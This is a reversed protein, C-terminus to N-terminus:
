IHLGEHLWKDKPLKKFRERSLSSADITEYKGGVILDSLALAAGHAQMLGRGTFSHAEYVSKYGPLKGLLGSTDPTYSYLGGWGTLWKLREFKSSREYLTPWIHSEFFDPDYDFRFGEPEDKLVFGALINGGEPHFYVGSTDVVMGYKTIDLEDAQFLCVQRRIPKVLADSTLKALLVQLWAGGALVVFSFKGSEAKPLAEKPHQLHHIAKDQNDVGGFQVEVGGATEKLETVWLRDHFTVGRTKALDRFHMKLGNANVLGDNSGFLGVSVNELKDLFPYKAQIQDPTWAEYKLGREETKKVMAEAEGAKSKDYLWLYGTNQFGAAVSNQRIYDITHRALEVNIGQQWLHRVGGANRESSSLSGELDIDVVHLDNVGRRSLEAAIASGLIGAGLILGNGQM